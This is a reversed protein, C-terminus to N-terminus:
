WAGESQEDQQLTQIVHVDLQLAHGEQVPLCRHCGVGECGPPHASLREDSGPCCRKSWATEAPSPPPSVSGEGTSGAWGRGWCPGPGM